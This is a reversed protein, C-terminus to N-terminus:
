VRGLRSSTGNARLHMSKRLGVFFIIRNNEITGLKM